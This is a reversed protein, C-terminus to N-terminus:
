GDPGVSLARDRDPVLAGRAGRRWAILGVGNCAVTIAMLTAIESESFNM